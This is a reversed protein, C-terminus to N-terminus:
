NFCLGKVQEFECSPIEELADLNEFGLDEIWNVNCFNPLFTVVREGEETEYVEYAECILGTHHMKFVHMGEGNMVFGDRSDGTWTERVYLEKAAM